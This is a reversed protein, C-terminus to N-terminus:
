TRSQALCELDCFKTEEIHLALAAKCMWVGTVEFFVNRSALSREALMGRQLESPVFGCKGSLQRFVNRRLASSLLRM